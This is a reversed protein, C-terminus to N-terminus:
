TVPAAVAATPAAVQRPFLALALASSAACAFWVVPWSSAALLLPIGVPTIFLVSFSCTNGMGLATGARAPGALSALETYAVGHWASAAMGALLLLVIVTMTALSAHAPQRGLLAVACGLVAFSAATLWTWARLFRRRNGHRDTWRGSWLRLVVAGTQVGLMVATIVALGAHLQDHLFVTGFALVAFQPACLVGIGLAVRWIAADHLPGPAPKLVTAPAVAAVGPPEHVWRWTFWGTAACLAALVGYVAIFGHRSALLPLVLAGLGGGLPVATQRISMALGREGERFWTMIARGSSGNVSGGLIGVCALGLALQKWGPIAHPTPVAFWALAVLAAATTLLGLLLVKRDGWRDTLLGWPLESLAIGAGLLGLVLGLEANGLHYDSRMFVATTPIGQFVASFSANAAVGAGLVKWRHNPHDLLTRRHAM